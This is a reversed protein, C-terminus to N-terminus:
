REGQGECNPCGYKGLKDHDFRHGCNHCTKFKRLQAPMAKPGGAGGKVWTGPDGYLRLVLALDGENDLDFVAREGIYGAPGDVNKLWADVLYRKDIVAFDHGQGDSAVISTVNEDEPWGYIEGNGALEIMREACCTCNVASDGNPFVSEDGDKTVGMAEDTAMAELQMHRATRHGRVAKIAEDKTEHFRLKQRDRRAMDQWERRTLPMSVVSQSVAESYASVWRYGPRGGPRGRPYTVAGREVQGNPFLHVTKM